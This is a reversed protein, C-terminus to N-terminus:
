RERVSEQKYRLLPSMFYEVLRRGGTKIEATVTMGSSIRVVKEEVMLKDAKLKFLARYILGRKEDQIADESLSVLEADIMGYKTFNFTEVKIKANQGQKVFGVDQNSVFAEVELTSNEPVIEMLIQAPTVVGGVTHVALQQVSGSIPATLHYQMARKEAKVKDEALAAVQVVLAQKQTLTNKRQEHHLASIQAKTTELSANLTQLKAQQVQLNQEVEILQQKLELYQVRAVYQQIYLMELSVAREQIVPLLRNQKEIEAQTMKSEYNLREYEQLLSNRKALYEAAEQNLLAQQAAYQVDNMNETKLLAPSKSLDSELWDALASVRAYQASTEEWENVVRRVDAETSTPDLTILADGAKVTSGEHVHIEAITATELPQIQKVRESPIVKGQAVAVVDVKGVCAWAVSIVFLAIISWMIARGARPAPSREIEIAAPLFEHIDRETLAYNPKRM